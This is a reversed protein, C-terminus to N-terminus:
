TSHDSSGPDGRDSLSQPLQGLREALRGMKLFFAAREFNLEM